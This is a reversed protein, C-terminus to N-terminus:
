GMFLPMSVSKPLIFDFQVRQHLLFLTEIFRVLAHKVLLSGHMSGSLILIGCCHSHQESVGICMSSQGLPTGSIARMDNAMESIVSMAKGRSQADTEWDVMYLKLFASLVTARVVLLMPNFSSSNESGPIPRGIGADPMTRQFQLLANEVSM